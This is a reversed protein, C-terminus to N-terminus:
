GCGCGWGGGPPEPGRISCGAGGGICRRTRRHGGYRRGAGCTLFQRVSVLRESLLVGASAVFMGPAMALGSWVPGAHGLSCAGARVGAGVAAYLVLDAAGGRCRGVAWGVAAGADLVLPGAFVSAIFAGECFGPSASRFSLGLVRPRARIATNGHRVRSTDLAAAVLAPAAVSGVPHALPALRVLCLVPDPWSVVVRLGLSSCVSPSPLLVTVPSLLVWLTGCGVVSSPSREHSLSSCVLHEGG